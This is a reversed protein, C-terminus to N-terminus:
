GLQSGAKARAGTLCRAGDPQNGFFYLYGEDPVAIGQATAQALVADRARGIARAHDAVPEGHAVLQARRGENLPLSALRVSPQSDHRLEPDDKTVFFTVVTLVGSDPPAAEIFVTDKWMKPQRQDLHEAPM